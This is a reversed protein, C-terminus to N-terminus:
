KCVDPKTLFWNCPNGNRDLSSKSSKVHGDYYLFNASDTHRLAPAGPNPHGDWTTGAFSGSYDTFHASFLNAWGSTGTNWDGNKADVVEITSAPSEVIADPIGSADWATPVGVAVNNAAVICNYAYDTNPADQNDVTGSFAWNNGYENPRIHDTQDPCLYVAASKTYPYLLEMWLIRGTNTADYKYAGSYVEDNDQNYQMEALGIQKLNSECSIQRAKERAKAFVPFLIAALIAIIVIVVLLEILTFGQRERQSHFPHM